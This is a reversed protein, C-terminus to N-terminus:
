PCCTRRCGRQVPTRPAIAAAATAASRTWRTSSCSAMRSRRSSRRTCTHARRATALPSPHPSSAPLATAWLSGRGERACVCVCVCACVCVEQALDMGDLREDVISDVLERRAEGVKCKKKDGDGDGDGDGSRRPNRSGRMNSELVDRLEEMSGVVMPAAPAARARTHTRARAHTRTHTRAEGRVGRSVWRPRGEAQGARPDCRGQRGAGRGAAARAM